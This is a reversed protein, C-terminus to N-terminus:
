EPHVPEDCTPCEAFVRVPGTATEYRILLNAPPITRGCSPCEGLPPRAREDGDTM